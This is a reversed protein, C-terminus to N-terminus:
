KEQTLVLKIKQDNKKFFLRQSSSIDSEFEYGIKALSNIYVRLYEEETLLVDIELIEESKSINKVEILEDSLITELLEKEIQFQSNLM